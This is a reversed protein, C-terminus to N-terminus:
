QSGGTQMRHDKRASKRIEEGIRAAIRTDKIDHTRIINAGNYVAIATAAISGSLRDAPNPQNLLSGIFAKRSVGVLIPRNFMTFMCLNCLIEYDVDSPKGFGIGPDILIKNTDIEAELALSLSQRLSELSSQVSDCYPRCNAMLIVPAARDSVLTAMNSDAKLGSVDNIVTVGMELARDAIKSSVTDISLPLKTVSTIIDIARTIRKLEEHESVGQTGYIDRPATSAGGVDIIDAGEKDFRAIIQRIDEEEVAIADKYFSEPSLNIVGMVRVPYKDGIRLGAIDVYSQKL